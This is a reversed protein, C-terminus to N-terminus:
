LGESVTIIGNGCEVVVTQQPRDGINCSASEEDSGTTGHHREQGAPRFSGSVHVEYRGPSVAEFDSAAQGPPLEYDIERELGRNPRSVSVTLRYQRSEDYNRLHFQECRTRITETDLRHSAQEVGDAYQQQM